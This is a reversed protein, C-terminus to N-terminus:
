RRVPGPGPKYIRASSDHQSSHCDRQRPPGEDATARLQLNELLGQARVVACAQQYVARGPEALGTGVPLDVGDRQELLGAPGQVFAVVAAAHHGDGVVRRQEVGGREGQLVPQRGGAPQEVQDLLPDPAQGRLGTGHDLQERQALRELEAVELRDRGGPHQLRQFPGPQHRDGDGSPNTLRAWGSCPSTM